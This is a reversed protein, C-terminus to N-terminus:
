PRHWLSAVACDLLMLISGSSLFMMVRYRWCLNSLRHALMLYWMLIRHSDWLNSLNCDM